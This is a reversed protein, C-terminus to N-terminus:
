TCDNKELAENVETISIERGIEKSLSKLFHTCVDLLIADKITPDKIYAEKAKKLSDQMVGWGFPKGNLLLCKVKRNQIRDFYSGSRIEVIDGDHM